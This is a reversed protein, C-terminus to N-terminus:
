TRRHLPLSKSCSKGSTPLQPGGDSRTTKEQAGDALLFLWRNGSFAFYVSAVNGSLLSMGGVVGVIVFLIIMMNYFHPGCIDNLGKAIHGLSGTDHNVVTTYNGKEKNGVIGWLVTVNNGARVPVGSSAVEVVREQGDARVSFCKTTIPLLRLFRGM